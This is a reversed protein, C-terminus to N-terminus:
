TESFKKRALSLYPRTGVLALSWRFCLVQRTVGKATQRVGEIKWCYLVPNVSLNLYVLTLTYRLAISATSSLETQAISTVLIVHPLYCAALTFQLWLATSVAKRYRRHETSKNTETTSSARTISRPSSPPHLFDKYLLLDLSSFGTYFSHHWVVVLCSFELLIQNGATSSVTSM